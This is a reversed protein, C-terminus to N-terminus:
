IIVSNSRNEYKLSGLKNIEYIKCIFEWNLSEFQLINM